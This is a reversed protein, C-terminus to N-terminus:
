ISGTTFSKTVPKISNGANDKVCNTHLVITYKTNPKLLASHKIILVNGSLSTTLTIKIGNSAILEVAMNGAKVPENFTIKIVKNRAVKTAFNAPDISKIIPPMADVYVSTYANQKDLRAIIKATGSITGSKLTAKAVGNFLSIPTNISGLYTKFTVLIGDPAHGNTPNHYVGKSDYLLNAIVSSTGYKGILTPTANIKLVLWTIPNINITNSAGANSGWWNYKADMTSGTSSYVNNVTSNGIIQNFNVTAIDSNCIAGGLNASNNIFISSKVILQGYNNYIAGGDWEAYNNTFTSGTITCIGNGMNTIAGGSSGPYVGGYITIRDASNNTFITNAINLKGTNYITGFWMGSNDKLICNSIRMTGKNSIVGFYNDDETANKITLNQITVIANPNNFIWTGRGNIITNTKSQGIITMNKGITIQTNKSGSYFGNAVKITGGNDITETANKISHKATAWTTGSWSDDGHTSNVYVVPSASVTGIFAISFLLMSITIIVQKKM